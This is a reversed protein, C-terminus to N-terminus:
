EITSYIDGQRRIFSGASSIEHHFIDTENQTVRAKLWRQSMVTNKLPHKALKELTENIVAKMAERQAIRPIRKLEAPSAFFAIKREVTDRFDASHQSLLINHGKILSRLVDMLANALEYIPPRQYASGNNISKIRRAHLNELKRLKDGILPAIMKMQHAVVRDKPIKKPPTRDGPPTLMNLHIRDEWGLFPILADRLVDVPLIDFYTPDGVCQHFISDSLRYSASPM